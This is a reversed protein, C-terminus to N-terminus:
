CTFNIRVSANERDNAIVLGTGPELVIPFGATQILAIAPAVAATAIVLDGTFVAAAGQSCSIPDRGTIGAGFSWRLDRAIAGDFSAGRVTKTLAITASTGTPKNAVASLVVEIRDSGLPNFVQVFSSQAAVAAATVPTTEWLIEDKLFAWEPRDSEIIFGPPPFELDESILKYLLERYRPASEFGVLGM